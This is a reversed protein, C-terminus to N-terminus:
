SKAGIRSGFWRKIDEFLAAKTDALEMLLNHRAGPYEKYEKDESPLADFFGKTGRPYCIKDKEGLLILTPTKINSAVVMDMAAMISKGMKAKVGGIYRLGDTMMKEVEGEDRTIENLDLGSLALWPM